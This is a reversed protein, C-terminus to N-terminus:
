PKGAAYGGDQSSTGGSRESRRERRDRYAAVSDPDVLWVARDTRRAALRGSSCLVRVRQPSVKLKDAAQAVSITAPDSSGGPQAPALFIPLAPPQAAAVAMARHKAAEQAAAAESFTIRLQELRRTMQAQKVTAPPVRGALLDRLMALAGAAEACDLGFVAVGLGDGLIQPDARRAQDM